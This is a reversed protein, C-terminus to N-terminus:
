SLWEFEREGCRLIAQVEIQSDSKAEETELDVFLSLSIDTTRDAIEKSSQIELAVERKLLSLDRATKPGFFLIKQSADYIRVTYTNDVPFEAYATYDPKTTVASAM